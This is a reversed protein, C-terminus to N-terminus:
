EDYNQLSEIKAKQAAIESQAKELAVEAKEARQRLLATVRIQLARELGVSTSIALTPIDTVNPMGRGGYYNAECIEGPALDDPHVSITESIQTESLIRRAISEPLDLCLDTAGCYGSAFNVRNGDPLGYLRRFDLARAGTLWATGEGPTGVGNPYGGNGNQLRLKLQFM